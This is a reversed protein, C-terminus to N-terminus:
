IEVRTAESSTIPTLRRGSSFVGIRARTPLMQDVLVRRLCEVTQEEVEKPDSLADAASIDPNEHWPKISWSDEWAPSFNM